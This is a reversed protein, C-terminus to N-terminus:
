IAKMDRKYYVENQYNNKEYVQIDDRLYIELLARSSDFCKQIRWYRSVCRWNADLLTASISDEGATHLVVLRVVSECWQTNIAKLFDQCIQYTFHPM